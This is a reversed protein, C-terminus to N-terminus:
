VGKGVKGSAMEDRWWDGRQGGGSKYQQQQQRREYELGEAVVANEHNAAQMVDEISPRLINAVGGRGTRAVRGGGGAIGRRKAPPPATVDQNRRAVEPHKPDNHKMNGSGGRGTTYIPTKVTPTILNAPKAASNVTPGINGLGGRGHSAKPHTTPILLHDTM